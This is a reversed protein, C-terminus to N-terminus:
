RFPYVGRRREGASTQSGCTLGAKKRQCHVLVLGVGGLRRDRAVGRVRVGGGHWCGRYTARSCRGRGVKSGGSSMSWVRRFKVGADAADTLEGPSIRWQRHAGMRRRKGIQKGV